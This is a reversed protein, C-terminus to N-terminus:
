EFLNILHPTERPEPAVYPVFYESAIAPRFKQIKQIRFREKIKMEQERTLDTNRSCAGRDCVNRPNEQSLFRGCLVCNVEANPALEFAPFHPKITQMTLSNIGARFAVIVKGQSQLEAFCLDSCVAYFRNYIDHPPVILCFICTNREEWDPLAYTSCSPCNWTIRIQNGNSLRLM